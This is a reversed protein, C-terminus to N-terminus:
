KKILQLDVQIDGVVSEGRFYGAAVQVARRGMIDPHQAITATLKSDRVYQLAADIGDFGVLVPPPRQGTVEYADICGLIMNDNHAFVGDVDLGQGILRSTLAKAQQRDFNAVERKVLTLGPYKEIGESFGLGRSEAASTGPIGELELIEGKGGLQEAMFTAALHGGIRNDSEIHALVKGGHIRRDVTIVPVNDSEALDLVPSIAASNTPNIILVDVRKELASFLDVIQKADNNEADLVTIDMGLIEAQDEAHAVMSQFFQSDMSSVSFAIQKGVHEGTILELPTHQHLAVTDGSLSKWAAEVAYAGMEEPYQEITAHIRNNRMETRVTDLNDYGTLLVEGSLGLLELAQLAGLAMEDNGCFIADVMEEPGTLSKAVAAFAEDRHWNGKTVGTVTIASNEGVAQIFGDTRSDSNSIGPMGEVVLVNGKGNLKVRIYEGILEGGKFNDPGIFPIEVGLKKLTEPDLPNDINIVKIGRELAKMCVPILEKSDNPALIIAGYGRSILNEMIAIQLDVNTERDVGFMELQITHKKAYEKAGRDVRGWFPNSLAKMVLAVTKHNGAWSEGTFSQLSISLLVVVTIFLSRFPVREMSNGM